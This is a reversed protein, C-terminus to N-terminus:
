FCLFFFGRELRPRQRSTKQTCMWRYCSTQTEGRHDRGDIEEARRERPLRISIAISLTYGKSTDRLVRIPIEWPNRLSIGMTSFRYKNSGIRLNLLIKWPKHLRRVVRWIITPLSATNGGFHAWRMEFEPRSYRNFLFVSIGCQAMEVAWRRKPRAYNKELEPGLLLSRFKPGNEMQALLALNLSISILTSCAKVTMPFIFRALDNLVWSGTYRLSLNLLCLPM